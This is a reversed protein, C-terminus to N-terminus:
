GLWGSHCVTPLAAGLAVGHLSVLPCSSLAAPLRLATRKTSARGVRGLPPSELKCWGCRHDMPRENNCPEVYVPEVSGQLRSNWDGGNALSVASGGNGCAGGYHSSPEHAASGTGRRVSVESGCLSRRQCFSHRPLSPRRDGSHPSRTTAACRNRRADFGRRM